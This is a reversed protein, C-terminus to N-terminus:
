LWMHKHGHIIIAPNGRNASSFRGTDTFNCVFQWTDSEQGAKDIHMAMDKLSRKAAMGM